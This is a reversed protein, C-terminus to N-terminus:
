MLMSRRESDRGKLMDHFLAATEAKEKDEGYIEALMVATDRVGYTHRLRKESLNKEIYEIISDTKM